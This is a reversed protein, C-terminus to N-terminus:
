KAETRELGSDRFMDFEELFEPGDIKVMKLKFRNANYKKLISEVVEPEGLGFRIYRDIDSYKLGLREEDTQPQLGDVPTKEVIEDPLGIFKGLEKVEGKTLWQIPAYSGCDDGFLTDNGVVSESRNCTNLVYMDRHLQAFAYLTVMRLRAPANIEMQPTTKVGDEFFGLKLLSNMGGINYSHRECGIFDLVKEADKYDKQFGCPLLLGAVREKGFIDAAM